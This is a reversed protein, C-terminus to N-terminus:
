YFVVNVEEGDSVFGIYAAIELGQLCKANSGVVHRGIPQLQDCLPGEIRPISLAKLQGM